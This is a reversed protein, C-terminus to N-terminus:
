GAAAPLLWDTTSRMCGWFNLVCDPDAQLVRFREAGNRNAPSFTILGGYGTEYYTNNLAKTFSEQTIPGDVRTLASFSVDLYDCISIILNWADSHPRHAFPPADSATNRLTICGQDLAPVEDGAARRSSVQLVNQAQRKPADAIVITSPQIDNTVWTPVWDIREAARMMRRLDSWDSTAVLVTVGSDAFRAAAETYFEEMQAFLEALEPRLSALNRQAEALEDESLGTELLRVSKEALLLELNGYELPIDAVAVLDFGLRRIMETSEMLSMGSSPLLGIRDNKDIVGANLAMEMSRSLLREVSGDDIYLLDPTRVFTSAPVSAYLGITPIEAGITACELTAEYIRLSFFFVPRQQPMDTCIQTFSAAPDTLSWLHPVFEVCRGHIGGSFNIENVYASIVLGPEEVVIAELGVADLEALNAGVYSIVIPETAAPGSQECPNDGRVAQLDGGAAAIGTGPRTSLFDSSPAAEAPAADSPEADSAGTQATVTSDGGGGCAAVAVVCLVALAGILTLRRPLERVRRSAPVLNPVPNLHPHEM